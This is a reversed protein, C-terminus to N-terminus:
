ASRAPPLYVIDGKRLNYQLPYKNFFEWMFEPNINMLSKYVEIALLRLHKQHISIDNSFNLLDQYSKDYNNYVIQLTRLHIKCIKSISSKIAFMWILPAYTFQGNIFANALLKAKEVTLYKRIRRLAHLKYAAKRCLEEIHSKFKLQKDIKVGLLTVETSSETKSKGINLVFSDAEKTGLVMFQSKGPNAKLSNINFWALVKNLDSELNRFVLELEKNSSYLTNGDGFNCVESLTIVFFLDNIFINFLLPGLISGQPVGRIIDYWSNCSSGIKTRQKRRSLYDLILSLGIKDIGYFKLKAILLDHPICDYAKSLDMLITGVFGKQDLEKQRSHLLKFLAHQTNQAKRFGCLISSLFSETYNSLQKYILKEFVKSLLPLISVPRYNEKDLPDDKKFIPTAYAEKLCDPFAGNEFSTNICDAM